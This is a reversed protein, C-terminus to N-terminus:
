EHCVAEGGWGAEIYAPEFRRLIRDVYTRNEHLAGASRGSHLAVHGRWVNPDAGAAAARRRDRNVWGLGGNYASLTFSWRDCDTSANAIRGHLWADYCAAARVSQFADWPDFPGLEPCVEPLWAATQPVFQALGQAYPSAADPRWGSEAHLQGALRAPSADLGFYEASAAEVARRYQWSAEPIRANSAQAYNGAWTWTALLFLLVAARNIVKVQPEAFARCAADLLLLWVILIAAGISLIFGIM